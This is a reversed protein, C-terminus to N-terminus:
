YNGRTYRLISPCDSDDAASLKAVGQQRIPASLTFLGTTKMKAVAQQWFGSRGYTSYLQKMNRLNRPSFGAIGPFAALLDRSLRDIVSEGWGYQKQKEVIAKGMDWYLLILDRNVARAASVRAELIRSKMETVFAVYEATGITKQKM